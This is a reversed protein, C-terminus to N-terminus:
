VKDVLKGEIGDVLNTNAGLFALVLEEYLVEPLSGAGGTPTSNRQRELVAQKM